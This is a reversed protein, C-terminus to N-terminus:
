QYFKNCIEWLWFYRIYYAYIYECMDITTYLLIFSMLLIFSKQTCTRVKGKFENMSDYVAEFCERHNGPGEDWVCLSTNILLELREPRHSFNCEIPDDDTERMYDEVVPIGYLAHATTFDYPYLQAALATSCCGKAILDMSRVKAVIKKILETKGSGAIGTLFFFKGRCEPYESAYEVASIIEDYITQQEPTNPRSENLANLKRLEHEPDHMLKEREFETKMQEIEELGYDSLKKNSQAFKMQLDILLKNKALRANDNIMWSEEIMARHYIDDHFLMLTAFGQITLSVFLSRLQFPTALELIANDFANKAEQRYHTL